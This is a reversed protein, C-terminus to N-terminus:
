GGMNTVGEDLNIEAANWTGDHKMLDAKLTKKGELRINRANQEFDTGGWRFEGDFNGLLTSLHITSHLWAGQPTRCYATLINSPELRISRSTKSYAM